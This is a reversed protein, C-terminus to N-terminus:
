VERTQSNETDSIQPQNEIDEPNQENFSEDDLRNRITSIVKAIPKKSIKFIIMFYTGFITGFILVLWFISSTNEWRYDKTCVIAILAAFAISYLFIAFNLQTTVEGGKQLLELEDEKVEYLTISGVKGKKVPINGNGSPLNADNM